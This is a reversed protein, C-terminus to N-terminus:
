TSLSKSIPEGSLPLTALVLTSSNSSSSSVSSPPAAITLFFSTSGSSSSSLQSNPPLSSSSSATAASSRSPPSTKAPSSANSSSLSNPSLAPSKSAAGAFAAIPVMSYGQPATVTPEKATEDIQMSSHPMADMSRTRLM